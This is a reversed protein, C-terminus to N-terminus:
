MEDPLFWDPDYEAIDYNLVGEVKTLWLAHHEADGTVESIIAKNFDAHEPNNIVRVLDHGSIIGDYGMNFNIIDLAEQCLTANAFLYKM